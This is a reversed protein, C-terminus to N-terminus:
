KARRRLKSQHFHNHPLFCLLKRIPQVLNAHLAGAPVENSRLSMLVLVNERAGVGLRVCVFVCLCPCPRWSQSSFWVPHSASSSSTDRCCCCYCRWCCSCGYYCSSCSLDTRSCWTTCACNAWKRWLNGRGQGRRRSRRMQLEEEVGSEQGVIRSGWTELLRHGEDPPGSLMSLPELLAARIFTCLRRDPVAEM